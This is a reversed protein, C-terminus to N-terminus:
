QLDWSFKTLEGNETKNDGNADFDSCKQWTDAKILLYTSTNDPITEWSGRITITNSDNSTILKIQPQPSSGTGGTIMIFKWTNDTWNKNTDKLTNSTNTNGPYSIGTDQTGVKKMSKASYWKLDTSCKQTLGDVIWVAREKFNVRQRVIQNIPAPDWFMSIGPGDVDYINGTPPSDDSPTDDRVPPKSTDDDM